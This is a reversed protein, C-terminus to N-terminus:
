LVLRSPTPIPGGSTSRPTLVLTEPITSRILPTLRRPTSAVFISRFDSPFAGANGRTKLDRELQPNIASVAAKGIGFGTDDRAGAAPNGGRRSRRDSPIM